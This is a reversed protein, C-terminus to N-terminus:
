KEQRRRKTGVLGGSLDEDEALDKITEILGKIEDAITSLRNSNNTLQNKAKRVLAQKSPKNPRALQQSPDSPSSDLLHRKM